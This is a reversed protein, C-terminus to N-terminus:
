SEGIAHSGGISSGSGRLIEVRDLSVSVLDSILSVASGNIDGADRM